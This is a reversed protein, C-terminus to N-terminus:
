AGIAVRRDSLIELVGVFGCVLFSVLWAWFVFGLPVPLGVPYPFRRIM